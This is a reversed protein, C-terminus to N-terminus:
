SCPCGSSTSWRTPADRRRGRARPLGLWRSQAIGAPALVQKAMAKDMGPGLRARRQRRVARRGARADGARHRGRRATRAAAAAGRDTRRRPRCALVPTASTVPGDVPLGDPLALPRRGTRAGRGRREALLWEGDRTIGVATIPTATPTSPACCTRAGDGALRRARGVSRRVARRPQHARRPTGAPRGGGSPLVRGPVNPPMRKGARRRRRRRGPALEDAGVDTSSPAENSERVSRGPCSNTGSTASRSPWSNMAAATAAPAGASGRRRRGAPRCPSRWRRPPCRGRRSAPASPGPGRQRPEAPPHDADGARDALRRDLVQGRRREAGRQPRAGVGRREVVLLPQRDGDEVGGVGGLGSTRSIPM